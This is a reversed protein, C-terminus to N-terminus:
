MGEQPQQSLATVITDVNFRVTQIYTATNHAPDGLSDSYLQGGIQVDFGKAKVADQLAKVYRESITTEVFIAPIKHMAIYDALNKVDATGAESATSIGLLGKVELGYSRGFYAFADHATVLIRQSAPIKQIQQRVYTDLTALQQLYEEANANFEDAFEPALEILGDRVVKTVEQWLKVDFWVHPDYVNDYGEIHIIKAKDIQDAAALTKTGAAEMREFIEAIKGELHLGHYIVLDATAMTRVDGASAKYLHPDVGTGMLGQVVVHDGAIQKTLDALMTTTAVVHQITATQSQTEPNKKCGVQGLVLFISLFLIVRKM